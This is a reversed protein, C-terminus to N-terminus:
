AHLRETILHWLTDLDKAVTISLAEGITLGATLEFHPRDKLKKWDGGWSLGCEKGLKGLKAWDCSEDWTWKGKPTKFVIDVALGYNHWTSGPKANTVIKGPKTRGNAYLEAQEDFSRLGQFLDVNLGESKCRDLLKQVRKCLEPHLGEMELHKPADPLAEKKKFKLIVGMTKFITSISELFRSFLM